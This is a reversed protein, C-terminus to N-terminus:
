PNKLYEGLAGTLKTTDTRREENDARSGDATNEHSKYQFVKMLIHRYIGFKTLIPRFIQRKVHLGLHLKNHRGSLIAM